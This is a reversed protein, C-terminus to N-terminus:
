DNESLWWFEYYETPKYDLETIHLLRFRYRRRQVIEHTTMRDIHSRKRLRVQEKTLSRAETETLERETTILDEM